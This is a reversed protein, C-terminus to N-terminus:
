TYSLTPHCSNYMHNEHNIMKKTYEHKEIFTQM